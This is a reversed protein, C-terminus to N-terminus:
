NKVIKWTQKKGSSHIVMFYIGPSYSQMKYTTSKEFSFRDIEKGNIDYVITSLSEEYESAILVEDVVPNPYLSCTLTVSDDEQLINQQPTTFPTKKELTVVLSSKIRNGSADYTFVVQCFLVGPFLFILFSLLAKM